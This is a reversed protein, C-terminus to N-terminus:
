FQDVNRSLKSQDYHYGLHCRFQNKWQGGYPNRKRESSQLKHRINKKLKSQLLFDLFGAGIICFKM